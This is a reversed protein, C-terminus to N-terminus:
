SISHRPLIRHSQLRYISTSRRRFLSVPRVEALRVVSRTSNNLYIRMTPASRRSYTGYQGFPLIKLYNQTTELDSSSLFSLPASEKTTLRASQAAWPRFSTLKRGDRTSLRWGM